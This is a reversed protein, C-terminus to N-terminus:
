ATSTPAGAAVAPRARTKLAAAPSTSCAESGAGPATRSGDLDVEGARQERAEHETRHVGAARRQVEVDRVRAVHRPSRLAGDRDLRADAGRCAPEQHGHSAGAA